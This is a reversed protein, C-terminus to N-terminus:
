KAVPIYVEIHNDALLSMFFYCDSMRFNGTLCNHQIFHYMSLGAEGVSAPVDVQLYPGGEFNKTLLGYREMQQELHTHAQGAYLPLLIGVFFNLKPYPTVPVSDLTGTIIRAEPVATAARLMAMDTFINTMGTVLGAIPDNRRILRYYLKSKPLRTYHCRDLHFHEQFHEKGTLTVAETRRLTHLENDLVPERRFRLPSVNFHKDFAKSFSNILTYGCREGIERINYNSFRLLTAGYELRHRKYYEGFSEEYLLSFQHTFNDPSIYLKKAIDVTELRESLHDDAYSIAQQIKRDWYLKTTERM